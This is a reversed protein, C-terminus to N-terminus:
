RGFDAMYKPNTSLDAPADTVSGIIDAALEGITGRTKRAAKGNKKKQALAHLADRLVKARTSKREKALADLQRDLNAPLKITPAAM